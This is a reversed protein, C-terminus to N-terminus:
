CECDLSVLQCFRAHKEGVQVLVESTKESARLHTHGTVLVIISLGGHVLNVLLIEKSRDKNVHVLMCLNMFKSLASVWYKMPCTAADAAEKPTAVSSKVATPVAKFERKAPLHAGSVMTRGPWVASSWLMQMASSQGVATLAVQAAYVESLEVVGVVVGELVAEGVEVVTGVTVPLAAEAILM